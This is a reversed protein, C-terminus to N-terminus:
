YTRVDLTLRPTQPGALTIKSYYRAGNPNFSPKWAKVTVQDRTEPGEACSPDCEVGVLTGIGEAVDEGWTTWSIGELVSHNGILIQGPRHTLTDAAGTPSYMDTPLKPPPLRTPGHPSNDVVRRGAIRGGEIGAKRGARRGRAIGANRIRQVQRRASVRGDDLSAKRAEEREEAAETKDAAGARGLAYGGAFLGGILLVAGLALLARQGPRM